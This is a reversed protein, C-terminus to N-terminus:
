VTKVRWKIDEVVMEASRACAPLGIWGSPKVGDGVNYLNVVPTKQPMDFGPWSHYGPVDGRFYSVMLLEARKDFDPIEAKLEAIIQEKDAKVDYPPLSSLPTGGAMLLHKGKPALDPCLLSPTNMCSLRRGTVFVLSNCDVLPEDSSAHVAIFPAPRLKDNMQDLYWRDFNDEGALEVTKRPGTNSVIAKVAIDVSENGQKVTAGVVKGDDVAIKTAACKTRVQGGRAEIGKRLSEMLELPGRPAIGVASAKPAKLYAFFKGAPLEDDNVFHTPSVLSWFARIIKENETYQQVWQRLTINDAPEQWALAKKMGGMVRNTEEENEALASIFARMGGKAPMDYDKGNIRYKFTSAVTAELKVGVADFVKQIVGGMEIEIAGTTIKFGKHDITSYRGGIRPSKEVVITKYGSAVLLAAASLGGIGSGIVLVDYSEKAM